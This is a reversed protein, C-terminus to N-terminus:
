SPLYQLPNVPQRDHRIQFHLQPSDIRGSQGVLGVVQGRVVRQGNAVNISGLHAYATVWGGAHKILLMNGFTKLNSGVFAVEGDYAALVPTDTRAAINVGDNQVGRSHVGFRQIIPGRLPWNFNPAGAVATQRQSYPDPIVLERGVNLTTPDSIANVQMLEDLRVDYRNALSYLTDGAVVIHSRATTPTTSPQTADTPPQQVAKPAHYVPIPPRDPPGGCGALMLMGAVGALWFHNKLQM